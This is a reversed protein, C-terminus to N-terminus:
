RRSGLTLGAGFGIMPRDSLGNNAWTLAFRWDEGARYSLTVGLPTGFERNMRPRGELILSWRATIGLELGAYPQFEHRSIRDVEDAYQVGLHAAVRPGRGTAVQKRLALFATRTNADGGGLQTFGVALAPRSPTERLLRYKAFGGFSPDRQWGAIKVASLGVELDDTLGYGLSGSLWTRTSRDDPNHQPLVLSGPTLRGREQMSATPHLFLGGPGYLSQASAPASGGLLLMAAAATAAAWGRGIPDNSRSM